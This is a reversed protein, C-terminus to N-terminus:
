GHEVRMAQQEFFSRHPTLAGEVELIEDDSLMSRWYPSTDPSFHTRHLLTRTNWALPGLYVNEAEFEDFRKLYEVFADRSCAAAVEEIQSPTLAVGLYEAMFRVADRSSSTLAAYPVICVPLISKQQDLFAISDVVAALTMDPALEFVRKASAIVEVGDRFTFISRAFSRDITGLWHLSGADLKHCKFVHWVRDSAISPLDMWPDLQEVFGEAVVDLTAARKLIEIAANYSWTSGSRPM